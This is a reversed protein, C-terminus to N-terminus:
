IRRSTEEHATASIFVSSMRDFTLVGDPRPYAIPQCQSALKLSKYDPTHHLTWPARGRFIFTDLAANLLGQVLGHKFGPRINRVRKLETYIWSAKLATEYDALPKGQTIHAYAAEAALMGSKMATHTGKIKAVNLMGASCGMLLGGEFAVHPLSQFGGENLARAGYCIRKGGKLLKAIHPHTKFRQFEMFPDLYPNEYDLGIVYGIAIQNNELHYVFSGGYTTSDLPWGVTHLVKGPRHKKPDIEWLEKIGLGYTQPDCDKRLGFQRMLRESLSGRCGEGLLTM